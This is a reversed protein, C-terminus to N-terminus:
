QESVCFSGTRASRFSSGSYGQGTKGKENDASMQDVGCMRRGESSM